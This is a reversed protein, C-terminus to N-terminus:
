VMKCFETDSKSFYYTLIDECAKGNKAMKAAGCQCLGRRHGGNGTILDTCSKAKLYPLGSVTITGNGKCSSFHYACIYNYTTTSPKHMLVLAQKNGSSDTYFISDVAKSIVDPVIGTKFNECCGPNACVDADSHKSTEVKQFYVAFTNTLEAMACYYQWMQTATMNKNECTSPSVAEGYTAGEIYASRSMTKVSGDTMKVKVTKKITPVSSLAM